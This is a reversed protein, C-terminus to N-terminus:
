RARRSRGLALAVALALLWAAGPATSSRVACGGSLVLSPDEIPEDAPEDEGDPDTPEPEPDIPEPDTPEPDTPEPDTPEPDAPTPASGGFYLTRVAAVDGTSLTAWDHTLLSGDRKVISAGGGNTLTTSRYHMSSTIDYGGVRRVGSTMIEFASTHAAPVNRWIVRVYRDRDERTHEHWFGVTHGIEHVIVGLSCASYRSTDRLNVFQRGGDYGVNATCVSQGAPERFTVYAAETTRRVFRLGTEEWVAIANRVRGPTSVSGAITYPIVGRPWLRSDSRVALLPQVARGPEHVVEDEEDLVIDHEFILQQGIRVHELEVEADELRFLAIRPEGPEDWTGLDGSEIPEPMACGHASCLALAGVLLWGTERGSSQMTSSQM